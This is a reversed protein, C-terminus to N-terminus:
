LPIPAEIYVTGDNTKMKKKHTKTNKKKKKKKKQVMAQTYYYWGVTWTWNTDKKLLLQTCICNGESFIYNM